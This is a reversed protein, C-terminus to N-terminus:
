EEDKKVLLASGEYLIYLPLFVITLTLPDGTPTIIAALVLLAVIAHRRYKRFFSRHILGILSLVWALMPLEFVAGMMLNLMFFNDMYSDLSLLNEINASLQYQYLFRLTIPFILFYSVAVGLYFLLTGGFFAISAGKKEKEYLAPSIFDWLIFLLIPFAVIISLWFSASIHTFFQSALKTNILEVHYGETSFQPLSPFAATIKEFARYLCFDGNCPALIINDFIQPMYFFMAVVLVTIVITMKFLMKRLDELHAWFSKENQKNEQNDPM